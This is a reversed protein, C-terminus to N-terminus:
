RFIFYLIIMVAIASFIYFDNFYFFDKARDSLTVQYKQGAGAPARRMYANLDDMKYRTYIGGIRYSLVSGESTLKELESETIGLYGAAEKSTLFSKMMVQSKRESDM